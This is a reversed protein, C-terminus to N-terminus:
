NCMATTCEVEEFAVCTCINNCDDGASWTDYLKYSDGEYECADCDTQEECTISGDVNCTCLQCGDTYTEGAALPPDVAMCTEAGEDDGCGALLIAALILGTTRIFMLMDTADVARDITV